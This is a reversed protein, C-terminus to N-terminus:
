EPNGSRHPAPHADVVEAELRGRALRAVIRAGRRVAIADQLVRGDADTVIAYGRELTGLPSVANLARAVLELRRRSEGVRSRMAGSLARRSSELRLGLAAVRLAPSARRLASRAAALRAGARELRYRTALRLRGDLEDLRQALQRLAVGPHARALRQERDALM